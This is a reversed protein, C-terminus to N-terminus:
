VAAVPTAAAAVAATAKIWGGARGEEVTASEAVVSTAPPALKGNHGEQVAATAVAGRAAASAKAAAATAAVEAPTTGGPTHGFGPVRRFSAGRNLMDARNLANLAHQAIDDQHVSVSPSSPRLLVLGDGDSDEAEEKSSTSDASSDDAPVGFPWHAPLSEAM